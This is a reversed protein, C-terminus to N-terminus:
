LTIFSLMIFIVAEGQLGKKKFVSSWVGYRLMHIICYQCLSLMSGHEVHFLIVKLKSSGSLIRPILRGGSRIEALRHPRLTQDLSSTQDCCAALASSLALPVPTWRTIYGGSLGASGPARTERESRCCILDFLRVTRLEGLWASSWTKLFRESDRTQKYLECGQWRMGSRGLCLCPKELLFDVRSICPFM